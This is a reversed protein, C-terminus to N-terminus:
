RTPPSETIAPTPSPSHKAATTPDTLAPASTLAALPGTDGAPADPVAVSFTGLTAAANPNGDMDEVTDADMSVTYTGNDASTFVGGQDDHSLDFTATVTGDPNSTESTYSAYQDFGNPGTVELGDGFSNADIGIASNFTLSLTQDTV